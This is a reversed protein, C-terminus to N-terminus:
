SGAEARSNNSKFKVKSGRSSGRSFTTKGSFFSAFCCSLLSPSYSGRVLFFKYLCPACCCKREIFIAFISSLFFAAKLFIRGFISGLIRMKCFCFRKKRGRKYCFFSRKGRLRFFFAKTRGNKIFLRCVTCFRGAFWLLFRFFSRDFFRGFLCFIREQLFNLFCFFSLCFALLPFKIGLCRFFNNRNICDINNMSRQLIESIIKPLFCNIIRFIFVPKRSGAIFIYVTGKKM